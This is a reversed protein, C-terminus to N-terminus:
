RRWGRAEKLKDPFEGSKFSSNILKVLHCVYLSINTKIFNTSIGFVDRTNSAKLCKLLDRTEVESINTFSFVEDSVVSPDCFSLPPITSTPLASVIKGPLQVFFSNLEDPDLMASEKVSTGRLTNIVAWMARPKNNSSEIFRSSAEVKSHAISKRYQTRTQRKLALLDDTRYRNYLDSVLQCDLRQQKLDDNYWNIGHDVRKALQRREPFCANFCRMFEDHFASYKENAGLTLDSLSSLDCGSFLNFFDFCGADSIPRVIKLSYTKSREPGTVAVSQALHDSLNTNLIDTRYHDCSFNIFINDLCNRGRTAGDITRRFGFSSLLDTIRVAEGCMTGFKVNFDGAIIVNRYSLLM